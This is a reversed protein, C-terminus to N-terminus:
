WTESEKALDKVLYFAFCLLGIGLAIWTVSPAKIFRLRAM